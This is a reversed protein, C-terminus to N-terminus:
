WLPFVGPEFVSQQLARVKSVPFVAPPKQLVAACVSVFLRNQHNRPTHPKSLNYHSGPVKVWNGTWVIRVVDTVMECWLEDKIEEESCDMLDRCFVIEKSSNLSAHPQVTIAIQYFFSMMEPVEQSPHLKCGGGPCNWEETSM